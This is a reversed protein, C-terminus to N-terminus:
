NRKFAISDVLKLKFKQTYTTNSNLISATQTQNLTSYFESQSLFPSITSPTRNGTSIGFFQVEFEKEDSNATEVWNDDMIDDANTGDNVSTVFCDVKQGNSFPRDTSASTIETLTSVCWLVAQRNNKMPFSNQPNGYFISYFKTETATQIRAIGDNNQNFTALANATDNLTVTDLSSGIDSFSLSNRTAAGSAGFLLGASGANLRISFIKRYLAPAPDTAAIINAFGRNADNGSVAPNIPFLAANIFIEKQGSSNTTLKAITPQFTIAFDESPSSPTDCNGASFLAISAVLIITILLRLAPSLISLHFKM